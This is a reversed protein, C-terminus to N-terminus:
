ISIKTSDVPQRGGSVAPQVQTPRFTPGDTTRDPLCTVTVHSSEWGSQAELWCSQGPQVLFLADKMRVSTYMGSLSDTLGFAPWIINKGLGYTQSGRDGSGDTPAQTLEVPGMCLRHYLKRPLTAGRALAGTQFGSTNWRPAPCPLAHPLLTRAAGEQNSRATHSYKQQESVGIDQVPGVVRRGWLFHSVLCPRVARSGPVALDELVPLTDACLSAKGLRKCPLSGM